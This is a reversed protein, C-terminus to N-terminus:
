VLSEENDQESQNRYKGKYRSINITFVIYFLRSEERKVGTRGTIEQPRNGVRDKHQDYEQDPMESIAFLM